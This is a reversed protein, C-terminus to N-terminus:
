VSEQKPSTPLPMWHTILGIIPDNGHFHRWEDNWWCATYSCKDGYCYILVSKGREKPASGIPQWGSVPKTLRLYHRLQSVLDQAESITVVWSPSNDRIWNQVLQAAANEDGQPAGALEYAVIAARVAKAANEENRYAFMAAQFAKENIM